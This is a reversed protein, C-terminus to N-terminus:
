QLRRLTLLYAVLDEIEPEQLQGRYSPMPSKRPQKEFEALESKMFSHLRDQLDRVQVTFPDENLRIGRIERGDRTRLRVMVFNDPMPIIMRYQAFNDPTEAEPDLIAIRLRAASRRLGIGSLEPGMRGGDGNVLHCRTCGGKGRFISQGRAADGGAGPPRRTALDRLYKRIEGIESASLRSPPMETDPIGMAVIRFFEDGSTARTLTPGALSPGRAGEATAGHCHACYSGYLREGPTQAPQAALV